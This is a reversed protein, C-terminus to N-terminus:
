LFLYSSSPPFITSKRCSVVAISHVDRYYPRKGTRKGVDVRKGAKKDECLKCAGMQGCALLHYVGHTTRCSRADLRCPSFPIYVIAPEVASRQTLFGAM